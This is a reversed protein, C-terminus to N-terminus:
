DAKFFFSPLLILIATLVKGVEWLIKLLLVTLIKLKYFETVSFNYSCAFFGRKRLEFLM